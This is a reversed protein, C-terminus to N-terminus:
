GSVPTDARRNERNKTSSMAAQSQMMMGLFAFDPKNLKAFFEEREKIDEPETSMLRKKNGVTTPSTINLFAQRRADSYSQLEATSKRDLLVDKLAVAAHAADLLGTVLGIGGIPNNVHAADGALLVRGKAMTKACRQHVKYPAITLFKIQETPGPLLRKIKEKIKAVDSESEPDFGESYKVGCTCRWIDGKGRKLIIAWDEPDVLFNVPPWDCHADLDYDINAAVFLFDNWSTGEFPIDMSKRVASRGGDTGVLYQSHHIVRGNDDGRTLHTTVRDDTQEADVYRHNYLVKAHPFAALKNLIIEALFPQGLLISRTEPPGGSITALASGDARRWSVAEALFGANEVEELIGAKKFEQLVVDFYVIARPSQSVAEEAEYVTVSVGGQALLLAILLGVPGAGVIAVTSDEEISM